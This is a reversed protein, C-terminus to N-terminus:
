YLYYLCDLKVHLFEAGDGGGGGGVGGSGVVMLMILFVAPTRYEM